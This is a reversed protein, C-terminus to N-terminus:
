RGVTRGDLGPDDVRPAPHTRGQEVFDDFDEAVVTWAAVLGFVANEHLQDLTRSGGRCGSMPM